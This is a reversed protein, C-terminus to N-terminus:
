TWRAHWPSSRCTSPRVGRGTSMRQGQIRPQKKVPTFMSNQPVRIRSVTVPKVTLKSVCMAPARLPFIPTKAGRMMMSLGEHAVRTFEKNDRSLYIAHAGINGILSGDQRPLYSFGSVFHEKGLDILFSHPHSRGSHETEWHTTNDNDIAHISPSSSHESDASITWADHSLSHGHRIAGPVAPQLSYLKEQRISEPEGPVLFPVQACALCPLLLNLWLM